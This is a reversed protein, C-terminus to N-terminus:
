QPENLGEIKIRGYLQLFLSLDNRVDKYMAVLKRMNVLKLYNEYYCIVTQSEIDLEISVEILPRGEQFRQLARAYDSKSEPRQEKETKEDGTVKNL